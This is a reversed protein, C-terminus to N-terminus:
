WSRFRAARRLSFDCFCHGHGQVNQAHGMNVITCIVTPPYEPYRVGDERDATLRDPPDPLGGQVPYGRMMGLCWSFSRLTVGGPWKGLFFLPTGEVLNM